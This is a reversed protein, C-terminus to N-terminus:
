GDGPDIDLISDQHRLLCELSQLSVTSLSVTLVLRSPHLSADCRPGCSANARGIAYDIISCVAMKLLTAGCYQRECFRLSVFSNFGNSFLDQPYSKSAVGDLFPALDPFQAETLLWRSIGVPSLPVFLTKAHAVSAGQHM